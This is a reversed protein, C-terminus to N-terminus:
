HFPNQQFLGKWSSHDDEDKTRTRSESPKRSRPRRRPRPASVVEEASDSVPTRGEGKGSEGKGEPCVCRFERVKETKPETNASWGRGPASTRHRPTSHPAEAGSECALRPERLDTLRPQGPFLPTSGGCEVGGGGGILGKLRRCSGPFAFFPYRPCSISAM